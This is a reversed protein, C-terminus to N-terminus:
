LYLTEICSLKLQSHANEQSSQKSTQHSQGLTTATGGENGPGSGIRRLLYLKTKINLQVSGNRQGNGKTGM